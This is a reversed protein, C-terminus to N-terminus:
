GYLLDDLVLVGSKAVACTLIIQLVWQFVQLILRKKVLNYFIKYIKM